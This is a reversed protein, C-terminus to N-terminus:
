RTTCRCVGRGLPSPPPDWKEQHWGRGRILEGPQAEKVAEAVMAVIEEWTGVHMLDLQMKADGIGLFHAHGEIFGPVALRGELDVVETGDGIYAAADDDSGVFVVRGGSAALAQAQPTAESLTVIKGGRLVLDAPQEQALAPGTLLLAFLAAYPRM